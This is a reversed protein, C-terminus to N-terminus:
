HSGISMCHCFPMINGRVGFIGVSETEYRM